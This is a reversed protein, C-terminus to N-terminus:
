KKGTVNRYFDFLTNIGGIFAIFYGFWLALNKVSLPPGPIGRKVGGKFHVDKSGTQVHKYRQTTVVAILLGFIFLAVSYPLPIFSM